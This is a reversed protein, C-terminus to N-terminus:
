NEENSITLDNLYVDVGDFDPIVAQGVGALAKAAQEATVGMNSVARAFEGEINKSISIAVDAFTAKRAHGSDDSVAIVDALPDSGNFLNETTMTVSPEPRDRLEILMRVADKLKMVAHNVVGELSAATRIREATIEVAPTFEEQGIKVWGELRLNGQPDLWSSFGSAHGMCQLWSDRAVRRAVTKQLKNM